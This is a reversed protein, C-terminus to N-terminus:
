LYQDLGRAKLLDVLRRVSEEDQKNAVLTADPTHVIILDRVGLTAVLHDPSSRVICGSTEVGLQQGDMTNADADTGLLRQVARWSGVDDWAFP